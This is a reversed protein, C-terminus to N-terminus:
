FAIIAKSTLFIGLNKLSFFVMVMEQVVLIWEVFECNEQMILIIKAEVGITKWILWRIQGMEAGYETYSM